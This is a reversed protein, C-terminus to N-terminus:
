QMGSVGDQFRSGFRVAKRLRENRPIRRGWQKLFATSKERDYSKGAELEGTNRSHLLEGEGDLVFFHPYGEIAPYPSLVKENQNEPSFNVKVMVSNRDRLELIDANDDFYKDLIQCWGCWEGGVELLVHRGTRM